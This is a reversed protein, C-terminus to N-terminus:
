QTEDESSGLKVMMTGALGLLGLNKVKNLEPKMRAMLSRRMNAEPMETPTSTTSLLHMDRKNGFYLGNSGINVAASSLSKAGNKAYKAVASNPDHLDGFIRAGALCTQVCAPDLGQEVRPMCYTCKDAIGEGGIDENVLDSNVYRASYPCADACAGCGLCRDQDIQVTGNFPDKYTAAVEMTKTKGTKADRFTKEITDSPCVPVCAPENCHNCLGPYYTSALGEPTNSPGLRHVWNRGKDAPVEWEAKCAITCAHCGVCRNLDIVMGYQM